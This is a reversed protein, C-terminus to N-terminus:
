EYRLAEVPDAVAAKLTQSAISGAAASFTLLATLLLIGADITTRVTYASSLIQRCLLYAAPLAIVDSLVVFKLLDQGLMRLIGPSSAGLVKRVAIEKTRTRVAYSVLAFLGLCSLFVAFAGISSITESILTTENFYVDNFHDDLRTFELPMDPMVASWNDRLVGVLGARDDPRAARVLFFNPSTRDLYFV